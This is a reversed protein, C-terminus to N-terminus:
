KKVKKGFVYNTLKQGYPIIGVQDMSSLLEPRSYEMQPKSTMQM